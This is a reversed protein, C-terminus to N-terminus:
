VIWGNSLTLDTAHVHLLEISDGTSFVLKAGEADDTLTYSAHAQLYASIDLHDQGKTFDTVIDHGSGPAFVFADNGAGGTLTDDGLDGLLVDDGGEGLLTDGGQGGFLTDAGSGGHLVDNGLNGFLLDDGADGFLTDADKGGFLSDAGGGGAITDAGVNGFLMDAGLAGTISDDGGFGFITSGDAGASLTDASETGGIAGPIPADSLSRSALVPAAATDAVEVVLPHDVLSVTLDHVGHYAAVASMSSLPDFVSVDAADDLHLTVSTAAAAAATNASANWIPPEDWLVVDHVGASKTLTLVSATPSLGSPEFDLSTSAATSDSGSSLVTTLNHIATAALKPSNDLNFLGFHKNPDSAGPDAYADLLEYVYSNTVGSKANDFFLNLLYKAQTAQDVGGFYNPTLLTTYGGETMIVPVGTEAAMQSGADHALTAVPEAGAKPYSHFNAVDAAGALDPWSTLNAVPVGSLAGDAHVAGYLAGQYAVAAANGSLSGYSIPFNNVENPGEIMSVAGPHRGVFGDVLKLTSALDNGQFFLDFKIGANALVEYNWQGQNWPALVADRVHTIGLYQLDSIVNGSNAYKGDTYEVHVNVGLSGLFQSTTELATM